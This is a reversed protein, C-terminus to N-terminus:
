LFFLIGRKYMSFEHVLLKQYDRTSRYWAVCVNAYPGNRVGTCGFHETMYERLDQTTWANRLEKAINRTIPKGKIYLMVKSAPYQYFEDPDDATEDRAENALEDAEINLKAKWTLEEGEKPEQHGKVWLSPLTAKLAKMTDEIQSQVDDDPSLHSNPTCIDRETFWQMRGVVASNDCYHCMNNNTIEIDHYTCYHLLFLAMSLMGVSETRLSEMLHPTGLVKGKGKWLIKRDTAIV